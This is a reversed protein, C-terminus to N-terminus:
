ELPMNEFSGQLELQWLRKGPVVPEKPHDVFSFNLTYQGSILGRETDYKSIYVQGTPNSFSNPQSDYTRTQPGGANTFSYTYAAEAPGVPGNNESVLYQGTGGPLLRERSINFVVNEDDANLHLELNAPTLHAAGSLKDNTKEVRENQEPTVGLVTHFQHQFTYQAQPAPPNKKCAATFLTATTLAAFLSLKYNM